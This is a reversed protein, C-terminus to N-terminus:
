SNLSSAPPDIQAGRELLFVVLDTDNTDVAAKLAASENADISAGHKLLLDIARRQGSQTAFVLAMNLDTRPDMLRTMSDLDGKLIAAKFAIERLKANQEDLYKQFDADSLVLRAKATNLRGYAADVQAEPKGIM